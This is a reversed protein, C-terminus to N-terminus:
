QHRDACIRNEDWAKRITPIITGVYENMISKWDFRSRGYELIEQRYKENERVIQQCRELFNNTNDSTYIWPKTEDLNANCTKFTILSLGCCLAEPVVLPAAEGVSLLMLASYESMNEYVQKRTWPGLYRTNGVNGQIFSGDVCPGVFDIPLASAKAQIFAQAKRPEVKGLYLIRGNKKEWQEFGSYNAGNRLVAVPATCGRETFINAIEPALAIIAPCKIVADFIGYYGGDWFLREKILGYHTTVAFPVKLAQQLYPAHNEYQLHVFDYSAANIAAAVVALNPDNYITVEHGLEELAIKQRWVVEEVAGWGDSPIPMYGPGILAIKM